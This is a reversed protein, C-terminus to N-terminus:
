VLFKGDKFVAVVGYISAIFFTIGLTNAAISNGFSNLTLLGALFFLSATLTNVSKNNM